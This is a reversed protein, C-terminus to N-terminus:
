GPKIALFSYLRGPARCERSLLRRVHSQILPLRMLARALMPGVVKALRDVSMNRVEDDSIPFYNIVSDYPGLIEELRLGGETIAGVYEDLRFAHEGGYLHHVPHSKLFAQLQETDDIVHDRVALFCGDRRLVRAAERVFAGLNEAHHLAQRAYVVDFSGDAWPVKEGVQERVDITLRAERALRRVAETGVEASRDPDVACVQHGMRAFAYAAIGNGTGVELVRWTSRGLWNQLLRMTERCEDSAEFRRAAERNDLDLYAFRVLDAMEPQARLVRIAEEWSMTGSHAGNV